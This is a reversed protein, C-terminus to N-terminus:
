GKAMQGRKGGERFITKAVELRDLSDVDIWKRNQDIIYPAIKQGKRLLREIANIFDNLIDADYIIDSYSFIFDNRIEKLGLRTSALISTVEYFPNYIQICRYAPRYHDRWRNSHPM